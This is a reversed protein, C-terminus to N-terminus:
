YNIIAFGYPTNMCKRVHHPINVFIFNRKFYKDTVPSIFHAKRCM